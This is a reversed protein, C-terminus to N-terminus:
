LGRCARRGRFCLGRLRRCGGNVHSFLGFDRNHGRRVGLGGDCLEARLVGQQHLLRGRVALVQHVDPGRLLRLRVEGEGAATEALVPRRGDADGERLLLPLRAAVGDESDPIAAQV